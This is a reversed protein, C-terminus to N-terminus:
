KQGIRSQKDFLPFLIFPITRFCINLLEGRSSSTVKDYIHKTHIGLFFIANAPVVLLKKCGVLNNEYTNFYPVDSNTTLFINDRRNCFM